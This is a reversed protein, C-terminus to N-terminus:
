RSQLQITRVSDVFGLSVPSDGRVCRSPNYGTRLMLSITLKFGCYRSLIDHNPMTRGLGIRSVLHEASSGGNRPPNQRRTPVEHLANTMSSSALAASVLGPSHNRFYSPHVKRRHQFAETRSRTAPGSHAATLPLQLSIRIRRSAALTTRWRTRQVGM